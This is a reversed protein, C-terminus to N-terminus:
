HQTPDEDAEMADMVAILSKLRKASMKNAREIIEKVVPTSASSEATDIGLEDSIADLHSSSTYRGNVLMTIYPGSLGVAEAVERRSRGSREM